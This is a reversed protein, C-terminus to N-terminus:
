RLELRKGRRRRVSMQWVCNVILRGLLGTVTRVLISGAYLPLWISDLREILSGLTLDGALQWRPHACCGTSASV